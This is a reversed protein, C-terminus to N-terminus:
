VKAARGKLYYAGGLVALAGAGILFATSPKITQDGPITIGLKAAREAMDNVKSTVAPDPNLQNLAKDREIGGQLALQEAKYQEGAIQGIRYQEKIAAIKSAESRWNQHNESAIGFVWGALYTGPIAALVKGLTTSTFTTIAKSTISYVNGTGKGVIKIGKWAKGPAQSLFKLIAKVVGAQGLGSLGQMTIQQVAKPDLGAVKLQELIKQAQTRATAADQAVDAKSTASVKNTLAEQLSAYSTLISYMAVGRVIVIESMQDFRDGQASSGTELAARANEIAAKGRYEDKGNILQAVPKIDNVLQESIGQVLKSEELDYGGLGMLMRGMQIAMDARGMAGVNQANIASRAVEMDNKLAADLARDAEAYAGEVNEAFRLTTIDSTITGPLTMAVYLADNAAPNILKWAGRDANPIYIVNGKSPGEFVLASTWPGEGPQFKFHQTDTFTWGLRAIQTGDLRIALRGVLSQATADPPWNTAVALAENAIPLAPVQGFSGFGNLSTRFRRM